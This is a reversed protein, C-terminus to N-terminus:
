SRLHTESQQDRSSARRFTIHNRRTILSTCPDVTWPRPWLSSRCLALARPSNIRPQKSLRLMAQVVVGGACSGSFFDPARESALGIVGMSSAVLGSERVYPDAFPSSCFALARTDLGQQSHTPDVVRASPVCISPCQRVLGPQVLSHESM